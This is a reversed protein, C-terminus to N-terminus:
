GVGCHGGNCGTLQKYPSRVRVGGMTPTATKIAPRNRSGGQRRNKHVVPRSWGHKHKRQAEETSGFWDNYIDKRSTSTYTSEPCTEAEKSATIAAVVRGRDDFSSTVCYWTKM